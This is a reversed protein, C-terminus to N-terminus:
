RAFGIFNPAKTIGEGDNVVEKALAKYARVTDTNPAHDMPSKNYLSAEATKVSRPVETNFVRINGGFMTRIENSIHKSLNTRKDTMTILVGGIALSPNLQKKVRRITDLLDALGDTAYPEAQVPIILSDAAALSNITYLSLSPTTDILIYDYHEKFKDLTRKLVTERSMMGSLQLDLGSLEINSPILDAGDAVRVVYNQWDQQTENLEDFIAEKISLQYLSRDRLGLGKTLNGQPDFDIMLVKKGEYALAMGLCNTTVTKGVGGKHNCVAITKAQLNMM